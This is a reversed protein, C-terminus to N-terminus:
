VITQKKLLIINKQNEKRKNFFLFLAKKIKLENIWHSKVGLVFYIHSFLWVKEFEIWNSMQNTDFGM